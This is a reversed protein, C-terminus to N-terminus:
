PKDQQRDTVFRPILSLKGLPKLSEDDSRACIDRIALLSQAAATESWFWREIARADLNGPQASVAEYYYAKIDDCARKLAMGASWAPHTLAEPTGKLYSVVHRAASEVGAGFVGVTTRGRRRRALEYWPGLEAIEELVAGALGGQASKAAAFNVPCVFGAAKGGDAPADDPFDELVPGSAREFLSLLARLVRRQFEPENPAGLPRGLMFPVWLARPPKMAATQERILSIQATPVGERELYHGLAGV